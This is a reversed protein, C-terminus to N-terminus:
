RYWRDMATLLTYFDGEIITNRDSERKIATLLQRKYQGAGLKPAYINLMTIEEEQISGKIM